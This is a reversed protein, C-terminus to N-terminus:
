TYSLAIVRAAGKSKVHTVIGSLPVVPGEPVGCGDIFPYTMKCLLSTFNALCIIWTKFLANDSM